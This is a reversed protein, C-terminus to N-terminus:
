VAPASWPWPEGPGGAASANRGSGRGRRRRHRRGGSLGSGLIDAIKKRLPQPDIGNAENYATQKARRRETEDAERMSDTIKDAYTCRAPCTALPADPPRSRAAAQALSDKKTPTSSGGGAVGPRTRPGRPALKIGVLVDYDGLRLQRLLEVRRLTDVELVPLARIGMELPYDPSPRRGDEKTADDGAGSTPTQGRAPDRRDPRGIQGSTPKVVVKPDVSRDALIVQEVFEGGTCHARLAGPHCICRRSTRDAFEELDASPQRVGVAAPFRSWWTASASIDGEYM